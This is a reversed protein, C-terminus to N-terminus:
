CTTSAMSAQCVWTCQSWHGAGQRPQGGQGPSQQQGGTHRDHRREAMGVVRQVLGGDAAVAAGLDQPQRNGSENGGVGRSGAKPQHFLRRHECLDALCQALGAAIRMDCCKNQADVAGPARDRGAVFDVALDLAIVPVGPHRYNRTKAADRGGAGIIHRHGGASHDGFGGRDGSGDTHHQEVDAGGTQHVFEADAVFRNGGARVLVARRGQPPRARVVVRDRLGYNISKEGTKYRHDLGVAWWQIAALDRHDGVPADKGRGLGSRQTQQVRDAVYRSHQGRGSLGCFHLLRPDNAVVAAGLRRRRDSSLGGSGRGGRVHRDGRDRTAAEVIRDPRRDAARDKSHRTRGSLRGRYRDQCIFPM